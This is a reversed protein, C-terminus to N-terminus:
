PGQKPDRGAPKAQAEAYKKGFETLQDVLHLLVAHSQPGLTRERFWAALQQMADLPERDDLAERVAAQVLARHAADLTGAVVDDSEELLCRHHAATWIFSAAALYRRNQSSMGGFSHLTNATMRFLDRRTDQVNRETQLVSDALKSLTPAIQQVTMAQARAVGDDIEHRIAERDVRLTERRSREILLQVVVLLVTIVILLAAGGAGLTWVLKSWAGEYFAHTDRLVEAMDIGTEAALILVNVM